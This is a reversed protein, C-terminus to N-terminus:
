PRGARQLADLLHDNHEPAGISIRIAGPTRPGASLDRLLFGAARAAALVRPPAVSEVLLFNADRPWVRAILPCRTLERAIREREERLTNIRVRLAALSSATLAEIVAESEEAPVESCRVPSMWWLAGM